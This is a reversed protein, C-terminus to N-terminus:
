RNQRRPGRHSRLRHRRLLHSHARQRRGEIHGSYARVPEAFFVTIQM